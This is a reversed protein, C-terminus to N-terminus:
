YGGNAGMLKPTYVGNLIYNYIYWLDWMLTPFGSM